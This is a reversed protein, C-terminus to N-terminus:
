LAAERPLRREVLEDGLIHYRIEPPEVGAPIVIGFVLGDLNVPPAGDSRPLEVPFLPRVVAEQLRVIRAVSEAHLHERPELRLADRVDGCQTFVVPIFLFPADAVSVHPRVIEAIGFAKRPREAPDRFEQAIVAYIHVALVVVAVGAEGPRIFVTDLRPFVADRAGADRLVLADAAMVREPVPYDFVAAFVAFASEDVRARRAAAPVIDLGHAASERQHARIEVACGRSHTQRLARREAAPYREVARARLFGRTLKFIIFVLSRRRVDRARRIQRYVIVATLERVVRQEVVVQHAAIEALPLAHTMKQCLIHVHECRPTVM